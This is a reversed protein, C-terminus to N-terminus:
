TLLPFSSELFKGIHSQVAVEDQAHFYTANPIGRFYTYQRKAYRRSNRCILEQISHFDVSAFSEQFSDPSIPSNILKAVSMFEQNLLFEQYGIAQMGPDEEKYGSAVLSAVEQPLGEEMMQAVRADIRQYLEQRERWLIIICFKFQSRLQPSLNFSSQPRGSALSVELSRLIRYHDNPHIRQAAVPDLQQLQHYLAEAGEQALRQQLELRLQPDAQPTTPLGCLFNRIYFGTGGLVLPIRKREVIEQCLQDSHRVFEGVSFAQDPNQIDVLHHPLQLLEQSSPKATGINMGRYVQMSDASILEVKGAFPSLSYKGFLELALRTKGCATPAFVVLVPVPGAGEENVDVPNNSM